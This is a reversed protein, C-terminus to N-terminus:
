HFIRQLEDFLEFFKGFNPLLANPFRPPFSSDKVFVFDQSLHPSLLSRNKVNTKEANAEM